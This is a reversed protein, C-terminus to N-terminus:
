IKTYYFTYIDFFNDYNAPYEYEYQDSFAKCVEKPFNRMTHMIAGLKERYVRTNMLWILPWILMPFHLYETEFNIKKNIKKYIFQVGLNIRVSREYLNGANQYFIINNLHSNRERLSMKQDENLFFSADSFRAKLVNQTGKIM